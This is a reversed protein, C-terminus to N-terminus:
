KRAALYTVLATMEQDNLEDGFPPMTAGPDVADPQVIWDHLWKADHKKGADSLDPASASEGSAGDGDITHCLACERGFITAALTEGAPAAPPVAGTRVKRMYSLIARAQAENMGGRPPPRLGPAIVEPDRVHSLLWEPDKAIRTDSIPSAAGGDRHCTACQGQAVFERGALPM